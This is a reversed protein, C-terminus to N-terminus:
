SSNDFMLACLKRPIKGLASLEFAASGCTGVLTIKLASQGGMPGGHDAFDLFCRGALSYEGVM